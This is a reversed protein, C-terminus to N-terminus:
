WSRQSVERLALDLRTIDERQSHDFMLAYSYNTRGLFLTLGMVTRGAEAFQGIHHGRIQEYPIFLANTAVIVHEAREEIIRLGKEEISIALRPALLREQTGWFRKRRVLIAERTIAFVSSGARFWPAPTDQSPGRHSKGDLHARLRDMYVQVAKSFHTLGTTAGYIVTVTQVRQENLFRMRLWGMLTAKGLELTIVDDFNIVYVEPPHSSSHYNKTVIFAEDTAVLAVSADLPEIGFPASTAPYVPSYVLYRIRSSEDLVKEILARHINLLGGLGEHPSFVFDERGQHLLVSPLPEHIQLVKTM